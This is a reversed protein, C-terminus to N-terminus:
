LYDNFNIASDLRQKYLDSGISVPTPSNWRQYFSSSFNVQDISLKQRNRVDSMDLRRIIPLLEQQYFMISMLLFIRIKEKDSQKSSKYGYASYSILLNVIDNELFDNISSPTGPIMRPLFQNYITDRRKKFLELLFESVFRTSTNLSEPNKVFDLVSECLFKPRDESLVILQSNILSICSFPILFTISNDIKIIQVSLEGSSSHEAGLSLILKDGFIGVKCRGKM